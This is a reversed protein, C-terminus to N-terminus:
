DITRTIQNIIFHNNSARHLANSLASNDVKVKKQLFVSKKFMDGCMCALNLTYNRRIKNCFSYIIINKELFYSM